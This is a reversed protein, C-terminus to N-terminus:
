TATIEAACIPQTALFEPHTGALANAALAAIAMLKGNAAAFCQAPTIEPQPWACHTPSTAEDSIVPTAATSFKVLRGEESGISTIACNDKTLAGVGQAELQGVVDSSRSLLVASVGGAIMLLVVIVIVTQLAVGRMDRRAHRLAARLRQKITNM